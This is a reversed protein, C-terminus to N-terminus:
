RPCYAGGTRVGAGHRHRQHRQMARALQRRCQLWPEPASRYLTSHGLLDAGPGPPRRAHDPLQFQEPHERLLAASGSPHNAGTLAPEGATARHGRGAISRIGARESSQPRVRPLAVLLGPHHRRPVAAPCTRGHCDIESCSKITKIPYRRDRYSRAQERHVHSRRM